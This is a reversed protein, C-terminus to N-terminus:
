LSHKINPTGEPYGSPNDLLFVMYGHYFATSDLGSVDLSLGDDVEYGSM